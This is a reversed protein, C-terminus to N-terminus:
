RDGETMLEILNGAPDRVSFRERGFLTPLDKCDIHHENMRQKWAAIDDIVLAPHHEGRDEPVTHRAQVHLETSGFTYWIGEPATGPPRETERLGLIDSYFSRVADLAAIPVTVAAHQLRTIQPM